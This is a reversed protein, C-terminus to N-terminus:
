DVTNELIGLGDIECRIVDGHKLYVPPTMGAGTGKPTGTAIISGAKLTIGRTLEAILYDIGFIMLNTNSNQRLRGNVSLRLPLAPPFSIEDTTVIYPGMPLSGDLSKMFFNQKHRSLERGTIDNIITYGLIYEEAREIPVQYADKKIVVGLECEYDLTTIFDDHSPIAAAPAVSRDVHKAFFIPYARTEPNSLRNYRAMEENHDMYNLGLCIVDQRPYPIPAELKVDHLPIVDGHYSEVRGRLGEWDMESQILENMDRCHLGLSEAPIMGKGNLSLIGVSEKNEYSYTSLRM